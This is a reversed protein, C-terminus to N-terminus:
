RAKDERIKSVEKATEMKVRVGGRAEFAGADYQYEHAEAAMPANMIETDM